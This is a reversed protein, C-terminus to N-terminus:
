WVWATQYMLRLTTHQALSLRQAERLLEETLVIRYMVMPDAETRRPRGCSNSRGVRSQGQSDGTAHVMATSDAASSNVSGRAGNVREGRTDSRLLADFAEQRDM